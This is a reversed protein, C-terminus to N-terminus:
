PTLSEPWLINFDFDTEVTNKTERYKLTFISSESPFEALFWTINDIERAFARSYLKIKGISDVWFPLNNRDLEFGYYTIEGLNMGWPGIARIIDGTDLWEVFLTLSNTFMSGHGALLTIYRWTDSGSYPHTYYTNHEDFYPVEGNDANYGANHILYHIGQYQMPITITMRSSSEIKIIDSVGEAVLIYPNCVPENYYDLISDEYGASLTISYDGIPLKMRISSESKNVTAYFYEPPIWEWDFFDKSQDPILYGLKYFIATYTTISKYLDNAYEDGTIARLGTFHLPIIVEGTARLNEPNDLLTTDDKGTVPNQCGLLLGTFILVYMGFIRCVTKRQDM